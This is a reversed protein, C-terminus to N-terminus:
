IATDLVFGSEAPFMIWAEGLPRDATHDAFVFPRGDAFRLAAGLELGMLAVAAMDYLKERIGILGRIRQAAVFCGDIVMAGNCRQKGPFRQKPHRRVVSDNYSVPEHDRVPGPEIASLRRNAVFAGGGRVASYSEALDPLRVAGLVVEGDKMLAVSVGWLPSGWAFNTTGDVPDVLWLGGEGEETHGFEEGWVSSGPVLATLRERLFTEVDRDANTVISGDPKLDRTLSARCAQAMAGAEEVLAILDPRFDAWAM